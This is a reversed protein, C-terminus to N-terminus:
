VAEGFFMIDGDSFPGGNCPEPLTLKFNLSMDAGPSLLNGAPYVSFALAGPSEIVRKMNNNVGSGAGDVYYPIADYCDTDAAANDCTNYAGSSAYYEFSTLRLVNSTPCMAGSHSPDYFDTGAIYMDLLVGSGAEANNTLVLTDSLVVSGPRVVGFNLNSGSVGLAIVPNFFWLENEAFEDWLGNLDVAVAAVFFEGQMSAPTEVTLVCTYWQMTAPNWEIMEEGEYIEGDLNGLLTRNSERCNAEIDDATNISTNLRVYVDEIKEKGNKDWVLVDWEIQEGEFAYNEIREVLEEGGTSTAGPENYDDRVVRTSPDMFVRPAFEEPEITVGVGTGVGVALVSSVMLVLVLVTTLIKKMAQERWKNRSAM